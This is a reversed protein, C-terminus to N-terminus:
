VDDAVIRFAFPVAVPVIDLIPLYPVFRVIMLGIGTSHLIERREINLHCLCEFLTKRMQLYTAWGKSM